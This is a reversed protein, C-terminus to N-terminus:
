GASIENNNKTATKFEQNMDSSVKIDQFMRSLRNIYEAPM